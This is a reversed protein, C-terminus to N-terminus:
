QKRVRIGKKIFDEVSIVVFEDPAIRIDKSSHGNAIACERHYPGDGGPDVVCVDVERIGFMCGDCAMGEDDIIVGSMLIDARRRLEDCPPCYWKGKWSIITDSTKGCKSCSLEEASKDKMAAQLKTM